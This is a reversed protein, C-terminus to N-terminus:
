FAEMYARTANGNLKVYMNCFLEDRADIPLVEVVQPEEKEEKPTPPAKKTAKSTKGKALGSTIM